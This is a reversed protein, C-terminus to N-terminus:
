PHRQHHLHHNGGVFGCRHQNKIFDIGADAPAGGTTELDVVVFTVESLPQGLDVLSLQASPTTM